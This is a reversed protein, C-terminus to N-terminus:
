RITMCPARSRLCQAKCFRDDLIGQNWRASVFRHVGKAGDRGGFRLALDEQDSRLSSVGFNNNAFIVDHTESSANIAVLLYPPEMCISTVSS